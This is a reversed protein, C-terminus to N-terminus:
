EQEAQVDNLWAPSVMEEFNVQIGLTNSLQAIHQFMSIINNEFQEQLNYLGHQEIAEAIAQSENVFRAVDNHLTLTAENMRELASKELQQLESEARAQIQAPSQLKTLEADLENLKEDKKRIINDKAEANAKAERLAKKLERVSMREISDLNVEGISEGQEILKLEDDDLAVLELLKSQTDVRELLSLTKTNTMKMVASMYRQATRPSFGLMEIRQKFEGHPTMEKLLILHKGLEIISETARNQYFRIGDELAGVSLIGNYHLQSTLHALKEAYQQVSKDDAHSPTVVVSGDENVNIISTM